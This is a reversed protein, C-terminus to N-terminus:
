MCKMIRHIVITVFCVGGVPGPGRGFPTGGQLSRFFFGVEHAERAQAVDCLTRKVWAVPVALGGELAESLVRAYEQTTPLLARHTADPLCARPIRSPATRHLLNRHLLFATDTSCASGDRSRCSPVHAHHLLMPLQHLTRYQITDM